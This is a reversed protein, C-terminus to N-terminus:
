FLSNGYNNSNKKWLLILGIGFLMGGLHAFHAVNDFSFNAVGAFLEIAGYGIVMYKAKVPFPLPFIYMPVNPFLMGFALLIGFVAGSAGVTQSNLLLNLGGLLSNSYNKGSNIVEAGETYVMQLVDPSLQAEINRIRLWVILLNFLGAGVGTIFYYTLFRKPGWMNELVSGFIYVAFMNFFVHAFGVHMFMYTVLQYWHFNHSAPFHLGFIHTMDWRTMFTAALWLLANIIILNKTVPPM